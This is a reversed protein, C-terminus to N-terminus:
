NLLCIGLLLYVQYGCFVLLPLLLLGASRSAQAAASILLYCLPLLLVALAFSILPLEWRLLCVPLSLSLLLCSLYLRLITALEWPPIPIALAMGAGIGLLIWVLGYCLALLWFPAAAPPMSYYDYWGTYDGVLRACGIGTVMAVAVTVVLPGISYRKGSM